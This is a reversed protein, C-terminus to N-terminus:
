IPIDDDDDDYVPAAPASSATPQGTGTTGFANRGVGEIVHVPASRASYDKFKTSSGVWTMKVTDTPGNRQKAIILEAINTAVYDEQHQRYYDERHLMMVVDADQEIAGSERLDAMRPRKDERHEAARNLQSLCIVPVNLERALGKVGRSLESVEQQRGERSSGSMLQLYDIIIMRIDHKAAMRRAKARLELLGLGPTDDIYIPAESLEGMAFALKSFDDKNILNRRLKHSDVESRSCLLRQALQQRSMELSFVGVGQGILAANEALNLALATKGMSPRAALIIMDGAQFGSTLEDLGQFGTRLGTIVGQEVRSEIAQMTEVLLSSLSEAERASSEQMVEFIAREAADMVLRTDDASTYASHLIEGAAAILRRITAKDAVIRAYYAANVAAPVSEALEVLYDIGGVTDSAGRDVLMQHLMAIDGANHRDFLEVLCTFVDGHSPKYFDDPSKVIQIVEGIVEPDLIMSGLLAMESEIAHPPLRDFLKGLEIKPGWPTKGRGKATKEM